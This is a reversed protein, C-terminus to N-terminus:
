TARDESGPQPIAAPDAALKQRPVTGVRRAPFIVTATTGIGKQSFLELRGGHLRILSDVLTLGLGAGSGARNLSTDVQGFPSLAKEIESEDLGIGTDTVSVLMQGDGDLAYSLTVRGGSPTFKIANSLLNLLIQKIALEEGIVSPVGSEILNTVKLGGERLRPHIFDLCEGVLRALNVHSENLQREGAEIRSVDLIEDIIHLLKKGSNYIDSSYEWYQRNGIEGLVEDKIIESFGIIANLPTRLEHSMNALFESKARSALDSQIKAERLMIETAKRQSINELSGEFYLVNGDDDRVARANLNLWIMDEGAAKGQVEMNNVMFRSAMERLFRNRDRAATFIYELANSLDRLMIETSEFGLIRAMAPNASLIQGDPTMQFIGGAANEVIARYKKEAEGLAKEARRREEIDTFSGVVRTRRSEDVRLMSISMEVSRFSGDMTRLRTFSRSSNRKGRVVDKFIMRQEEQDHQHMLEFLSRKLSHPIDFGTIREWASNLFIIEGETSAEFIIDSVSDVIVRYEREANRLVENLREREAGEYKLEYNKKALARNMAALRWSQRQNSRIYMIGALTLLGGLLLLFLPIKELVLAGPSKALGFSVELVSDGFRVSIAHDRASAGSGEKHRSMLYIPAGSKQERMTIHTLGEHKAIWNMGLVGSPRAVGAVFSMLSGDARYVPRVLAFNSSDIRPESQEQLYGMGPLGTMFVLDGKASKLRALLPETLIQSRFQSRTSDSDANEYLVVEGKEIGSWVIRDFMAIDPMAYKMRARVIKADPMSSDGAEMGAIRMAREFGNLKDRVAQGVEEVSRAYDSQVSQGIFYNLGFYATFTLVLGNLFVLWLALNGKGPGYDRIGGSAGDTKRDAKGNTM